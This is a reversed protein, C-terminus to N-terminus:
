NEASLRRANAAVQERFRNIVSIATAGFMLGASVEFVADVKESVILHAEHQADVGGGALKAVAYRYMYPLTLSDITTVESADPESPLPPSALTLTKDVQVREPYLGPCVGITQNPSAAAVAASITPYAADSANCDTTSAMGDDDVVLTAAASVSSNGLAVLGLVALVILKRMM